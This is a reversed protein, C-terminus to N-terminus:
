KTLGTEPAEDEALVVTGALLDPLRQRAPNILPLVLLLVALLDLPKLLARLVLKQRPPRQGDLGAVRLRLLAKGLSRGTLVEAVGTHLVTVLLVLLPPLVEAPTSPRGLGPWHSFVERPLADFLLWAALLGPVLDILGAGVRVGLGALRQREGLRLEQKAPDRRWFLFTAATAVMLVLLLLPFDAVGPTPPRDTVGLERPEGVAGDLGVPTLRLGREAPEEAAFSAWGPLAEADAAAPAPGPTAVWLRGGTALFGTAADSGPLAAEGPLLPVRGRAADPRLAEARVGGGEGELLLVGGGGDLALPDAALSSAEGLTAERWGGEEGDPRFATLRGGAARHLLPPRAGAEAAVAVPVPVIAWRGPAADTEGPPTPLRLREWGDTRLVLLVAADGPEPAAANPAAIEEPPAAGVGADEVPRSHGRLVLNLARSRGAPPERVGGGADRDEGAEAQAEADVDAIVWPRGGAVALTRATHGPPLDEAPMFSIGARRSAGAESGAAPGLLRQVGGGGLTVWLSRGDDAAAAHTVEGTLTTQLRLLGGSAGAGGGGPLAGPFAGAHVATTGPKEGPSLLWLGAEGGFVGAPEAADDARAPGGWGVLCLCALLFAVGPRRLARLWRRPSPTPMSRRLTLGPPRGGRRAM